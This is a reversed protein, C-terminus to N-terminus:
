PLVIGSDKAKIQHVSMAYASLLDADDPQSHHLVRISLASGTVFRVCTSAKTLPYRDIAMQSGGGPTPMELVRVVETLVTEEKHDAIFQPVVMKGVAHATIAISCPLQLMIIPTDQNIEKEKTQM